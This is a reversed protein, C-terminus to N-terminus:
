KFRGQGSVHRIRHMGWHAGQGAPLAADPPHKWRAGSPIPSDPSQSNTKPHFECLAGLEMNALRRETTFRIAQFGQGQM